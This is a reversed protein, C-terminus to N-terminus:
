TKQIEGYVYVNFLFFLYHFRFSFILCYIFSLLIINLQFVCVFFISDEKYLDLIMRNDLRLTSITGSAAPATVRIAGPPSTSKYFNELEKIVALRAPFAKWQSKKSETSKQRTLTEKEERRFHKSFFSYNVRSATNNIYM